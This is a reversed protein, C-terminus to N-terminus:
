TNPLFLTRGSVRDFIRSCIVLSIINKYKNGIIFYLFTDYMIAKKINDFTM